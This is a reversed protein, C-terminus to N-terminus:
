DLSLKFKNFLPSLLSLVLILIYVGINFKAINIIISSITGFIIAYLIRGSKVVPTATSISAAFIAIFFFGSGFTNVLIDNFKMASAFYIIISVIIYSIISYIPIEKKYYKNFLLIIFGIIALLSSTTGIEGIGQGLFLDIPKSTVEILSNEYANANSELAMISLLAFLICKFLAVQNITIKSDIFKLIIDIIIILPITLWLYNTPGCVLYCLVNAYPSLSNYINHMDEDKKIILYYYTEFVYSLLVIIIPIILYKTASFWNIYGNKAVIIGNKIFGYIIIPIISVLYILNIGLVKNKELFKNEM